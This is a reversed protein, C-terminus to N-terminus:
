FSGKVMSKCKCAKRRKESIEVEMTSLHKLCNNIIANGRVLKRSLAYVLTADAKKSCPVHDLQYMNKRKEPMISPFSEGSVATGKEGQM